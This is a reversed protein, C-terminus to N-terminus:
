SPVVVFIVVVSIVGLWVVTIVSVVDGWEVVSVVVVTVNDVVPPLRGYLTFVCYTCKYFM